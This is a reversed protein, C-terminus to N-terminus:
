TAAQDLPMTRAGPALPGPNLEWLLEERRKAAIFLATDNARIASAKANEKPGLEAVM